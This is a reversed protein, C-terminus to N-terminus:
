STLTFRELTFTRPRGEKPRAVLGDKQVMKSIWLRIGVDDEKIDQPVDPIEAFFNWGNFVCAELRGEKSLSFMVTLGAYLKM